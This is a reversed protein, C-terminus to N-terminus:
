VAICEGMHPQHEPVSTPNPVEINPVDPDMQFQMDVCVSVCKHISYGFLTNLAKVKLLGMITTGLLGTLVDRPQSNMILDVM